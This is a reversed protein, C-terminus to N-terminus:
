KPWQSEQIKSSVMHNAVCRCFMKKIREGDKPGPPPLNHIKAYALAEEYTPVGYGKSDCMALFGQVGRVDDSRDNKKTHHLIPRRGYNPGSSAAKGADPHRDRRTPMEEATDEDMMKLLQKEKESLHVSLENIATISARLATLSDVGSSSKKSTQSLSNIASISTELANLTDINNNTASVSATPHKRPDARNSIMAKWFRNGHTSIEIVEGNQLRTLAERAREDRMNWSGPRFYVYAMNVLTLVKDTKTVVLEVDEVYGWKRKIFQKKIANASWKHWVNPLWLVVGKSPAGNERRYTKAQNTRTATSM